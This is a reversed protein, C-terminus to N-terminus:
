PQARRAGFLWLRRARSETGARLRAINARHTFVILLTALLGFTLLPVRQSDPAFALSVTMALASLMSALSVYGFIVVAVFWTLLLPLLLWRQIGFVVGILTAFGKGGRFGYWVPYVHGVMVALGCVPARWAELAAGAAAIGPWATPAILGTAIAGKAIDIILVCLAVLKGQTRLANTAGANGSGLSRIDVGRLSGILLSGVVSGLLYCLAGKLLLESV